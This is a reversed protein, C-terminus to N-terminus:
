LRRRVLDDRRELALELETRSGRDRDGEVRSRDDARVQRFRPGLLAVRALLFADVVGLRRRLFEQLHDAVQLLFVTSLKDVKGAFLNRPSGEGRQDLVKYM